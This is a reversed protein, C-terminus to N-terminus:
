ARWTESEEPLSTLENHGLDLMRLKTLTGIKPSLASLGNDALLLTELEVRDWVSEPVVGLRQKWLNLDTSQAPESIAM